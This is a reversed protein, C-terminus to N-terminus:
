TPLQAGCRACFRARPENAAGCAQCAVRGVGTLPPPPAVTRGCCGTVGPQRRRVFARAILAVAIGIAAPVYWPFHSARAPRIPEGGHREDWAHDRDRERRGLRDYDHGHQGPFPTDAGAAFPVDPQPRHSWRVNAFLALMTAVTAVLGVLVLAFGVVVKPRPGTRAAAHSHFDHSM